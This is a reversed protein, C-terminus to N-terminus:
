DEKPKVEATMHGAVRHLTHCVTGAAALAGAMCVSDCCIRM